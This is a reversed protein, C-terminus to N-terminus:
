LEITNSQPEIFGKIQNYVYRISNCNKHKFSDQLIIDLRRVFEDKGIKGLLNVCHKAINREIASDAFDSIGIKEKLATLMNSIEPIRRDVRSGTEIVGIPTILEKNKSRVEKNTTTKQNVEPQTKTSKTTTEEMNLDIISTSILKAVTGRNTTKITVQQNNTPQKNTLCSLATRYEQRTMGMATFDGILAEGTERNTRKAIFCLLTFAKPHKAIFQLTSDSNMLKLFKEAM